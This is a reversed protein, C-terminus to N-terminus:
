IKEEMDNTEKEITDSEREFETNLNDLYERVIEDLFACIEQPKGDMSSLELSIRHPM